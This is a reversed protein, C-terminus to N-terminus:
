LAKRRYYQLWGDNGNHYRLCLTILLNIVIFVVIGLLLTIM